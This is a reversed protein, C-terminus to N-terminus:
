ETIEKPRRHPQWGSRGSLVRQENLRENLEKFGPVEPFDRRCLACRRQLTEHMCETPDLPAGDHESDRHGGLIQFGISAPTRNSSVSAARIAAGRLDDLTATPHRQSLDRLANMTPGELWDPRVDRVQIAVARLDDIKM